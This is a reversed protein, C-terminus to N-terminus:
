KAATVTQLPSWDLLRASAEASTCEILIWGGQMALDEAISVAANCVAIDLRIAIRCPIFFNIM